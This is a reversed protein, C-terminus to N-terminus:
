RCRMTNASLTAVPCSARSSSGSLMAARSIAASASSTSLNFGHLVALTHGDTRTRRGTWLGVGPNTLAVTCIDALGIEIGGPEGKVHRQRQARADLNFGECAADRDGLHQTRQQFM